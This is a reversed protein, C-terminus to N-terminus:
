DQGTFIGKVPAPSWLRRGTDTGKRVCLARLVDDSEVDTAVGPAGVQGGEAAEEVGVRSLEAATGLKSVSM